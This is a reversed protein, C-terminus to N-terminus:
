RDHRPRGYYSYYEDGAEINREEARNLVIGVLRDQGIVAAADQVLDYSTRDSAVVLIAIDVIPGLLHADPLLSVPPTDVVVWDFSERAEVVVQRMRDSTLTKM